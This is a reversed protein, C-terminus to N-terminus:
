QRPSQVAPPASAGAAAAPSPRPADGFVTAITVPLEPIQEYVLTVASDSVSKVRFGQELMEGEKAEFVRGDGLMLFVKRAGGQHLTGAFRYPNPPVQPAAPQPQQPPPAPPAWSHKAFPDGRQRGIPQRTPLQTGLAQPRAAAPAAPTAHAREVPAAVQAVEKDEPGFWAAIGTAIAALSIVAWRRRPTV